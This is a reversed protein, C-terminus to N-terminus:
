RFFRWFWTALIRDGDCVVHVTGERGDDAYVMGTWETNSKKVLDVRRISRGERDQILQRTRTEVGSREMERWIGAIFFGAVILGVGVLVVTSVKTTRLAELRKDDVGIARLLTSITPSTNPAPNGAPTLDFPHALDFPNPPHALPHPHAVPVPEVLRAVPPPEIIQAVPPPENELQGLVTKNTPVPRPKPPIPVQLRQSCHPCMVKTGALIRSVTLTNGCTPCKFRM